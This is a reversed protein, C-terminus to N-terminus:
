YPFLMDRLWEFIRCFQYWNVLWNPFLSGYEGDFALVMWIPISKAAGNPEGMVNGHFDYLLPVSVLGSKNM